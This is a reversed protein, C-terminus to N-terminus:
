TKGRRLIPVPVAAYLAPGRYAADRTSDDLSGKMSDSFPYNVCEFSSFVM